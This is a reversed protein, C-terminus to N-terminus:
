YLKLFYISFREKCFKTFLLLLFLAFDALFGSMKESGAKRNGIDKSYVIKSDIVKNDVERNSSNLVKLFLSSLAQKNKIKLFYILFATLIFM